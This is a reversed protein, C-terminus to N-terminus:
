FNVLRQAVVYHADPDDVEYGYQQAVSGPLINRFVSETVVNDDDVVVRVTNSELYGAGSSIYGAYFDRVAEWGKPGVDRGSRVFSLSSTAARRCGCASSTRRSKSSDRGVRV